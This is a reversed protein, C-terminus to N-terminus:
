IDQLIKNTACEHVIYVSGSAVKLVLYGLLLGGDYRLIRTQLFSFCERHCPV